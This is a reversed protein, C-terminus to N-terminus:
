INECLGQRRTLLIAIIKSVDKSHGLVHVIGITREIIVTATSQTSSNEFGVLHFERGIRLKLVTPTKTM